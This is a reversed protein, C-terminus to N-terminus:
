DASLATQCLSSAEQAYLAAKYYTRCCVVEGNEIELVSIGRCAPGEPCGEGIWEVVMRGRGERVRIVSSQVRGFQALYQQWFGKAPGLEGAPLTQAEAEESLSRASMGQPTEYLPSRM